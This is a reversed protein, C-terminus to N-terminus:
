GAAPSNPSRNGTTGLSGAPIPISSTCSQALRAFCPKM